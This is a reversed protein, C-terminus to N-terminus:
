WHCYNFWILFRSDSTDLRAVFARWCQTELDLFDDPWCIRLWGDEISPCVIELSSTRVHLFRSLQSTWFVPFDASHDTDRQLAEPLQMVSIANGSISMFTIIKVPSPTHALWNILKTLHTLQNLQRWSVQSQTEWFVDETLFCWDGFLRLHTKAAHGAMQHRSPLPASYIEPHQPHAASPQREAWYWNGLGRVVTAALLVIPTTVGCHSVGVMFADGTMQPNIKTLDQQYIQCEGLYVIKSCQM